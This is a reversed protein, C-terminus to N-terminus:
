KKITRFNYKKAKNRSIWIFFHLIKIMNYRYNYKYFFIHDLFLYSQWQGDECLDKAQCWDEVIGVEELHGFFAM